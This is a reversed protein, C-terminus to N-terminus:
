GALPLLDCSAAVFGRGFNSYNNVKSVTYDKGQWTIVDAINDEGDGASLRFTTHLMISGKKREGDAVIVLLDGDDSTVVASFPTATVTNTARGNDGVSQISRKCLLGTDMFEPDLLVDTVDLLAM